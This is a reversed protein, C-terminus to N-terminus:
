APDLAALSDILGALTVDALSDIVLDGADLGEAGRTISNPVVVCRLGSAKAAAVGAPSDEFAIAQTADLDLEALAELYLTPNPKGREADGDASVIADWPARYGIRELQDLVRERYESTVIALRLGRARASHLLEAVGPMLTDPLLSRKRAARGAILEDRDLEVGAILQLHAAADFSAEGSARGIAEKVWLEVPLEVGYEAYSESWSRYAANETDVLLGDFDLLLARIV